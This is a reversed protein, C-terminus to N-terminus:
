EPNIPNKKANVEISEDSVSGAILNYTDSSIPILRALRFYNPGHEEYIHILKDAFPRSIGLYKECFERWTRCMEKYEGSDRLQKLAEAQAATCGGAVSGFAQHRGILSGVGMIKDRVNGALVIQQTVKRM